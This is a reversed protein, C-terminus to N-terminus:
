TTPTPPPWSRSWAPWTTRGPRGGSHRRRSASASSRRSRGARFSPTCALRGSGCRPRSLAPCVCNVNVGHPALALAMSRTVNIVAAKTAAYHLHNPSGLKGASSALNVIKGSGVERMVRAAGRSCFFLGKVNVAYRRDWDDPKLEWLSCPDGIAANNVLIDLRGLEEVTHGPLAEAAIPDALDVRLAASRRGLSQVASATENVTDANLDAVLVDAGQTALRLAVQRGIGQGAGTVLAVTGELGM